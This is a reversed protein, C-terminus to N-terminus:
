IEGGHNLYVALKSTIINKYNNCFIPFIFNNNFHRFPDIYQDFKYRQM